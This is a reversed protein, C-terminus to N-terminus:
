KVKGLGCYMCFSKLAPVTTTSGVAFALFNTLSTITISVGSRKMTEGFQQEELLLYQGAKAEPQQGLMQKSHNNQARQVIQQQIVNM